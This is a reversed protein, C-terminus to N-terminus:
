KAQSVGKRIHHQLGELGVMRMVFWLKISRFRRDLPLQWHKYDITQSQEEQQSYVPNLNISNMIDISNRVWLASRDHNVMMWKQPNFNFSSVHQLGQAIYRYAPCLLASGAYAADVHLWINEKECTKFTYIPRLEMLNDYTCCSTTGITACVFMPIKRQKRDEEIAEQLISGNVSIHEDVDLLRMTVLAVKSAREVSSHSYRSAYAVMRATIEHISQKPDRSLEEQIVKNRAELLTILTSESANGQIVGGGPGRRNHLFFDPLNLAKALWDMMVTELETCSPSSAWSFGINATSSCLIDGLMSPYSVGSPFYGFYNSSLWHVTGDIVVNEVDDFVTQWSEKKEPGVNPLREKM